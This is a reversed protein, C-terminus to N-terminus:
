SRTAASSRAQALRAAATSVMETRNRDTVALYNRAIAELIEARNPSQQYKFWMQRLVRIAGRPQNAAEYADAAALMADAAVTSNPYTQAM